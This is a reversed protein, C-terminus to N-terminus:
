FYKSYKFLNEECVFVIQLKRIGFVHCFNQCNVIEDPM